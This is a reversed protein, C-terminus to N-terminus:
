PIKISVPTKDPHAACLLQKKDTVIGIQYNGSQLKDKQFRLQIGSLAANKTASRLSGNGDQAFLGAVDERLKPLIDFSYVISKGAGDGGNILWIKATGKANDQSRRVFWGNITVIGDDEEISDINAMLLRYGTLRDYLKGAATWKQYLRNRFGYKQFVAGGDTDCPCQPEAVTDCAYLYGTHYAADKKWQVLNPSYFPDKARLEPYREYLRRKDKALRQVKEPSTDQGRSLSEHHILVADNVQVNFYGKQYLSFCLEVDNYAVPFSPDFGGAADFVCRRILMCAATVALMDYTQTNHGHYLCGEDAMGGLKHAPGIGMNTIGAHQIKYCGGDKKDPPYYLKAGVAGVHSKGAYRMMHELWMTGENDMVEIDDNLFLLYAGNAAQAGINCMASFNFVMERYLYQISLGAKEKQLANIVGTICMKQASTSGNDVVIIEYNPYRTYKILSSLCKELVKANDKSPIIVSVLDGSQASANSTRIKDAHETKDASGLNDNTYLVKPIHVVSNRKDRLAEMFIDYVLEYISLPEGDRGHHAALMKRVVDGRVAFISGVYFFSALTDPSFDPKFWPAGRYDATSGCPYGIGAFTDDTIGYLTELSGKYDEDAYVLVAENNQSFVESVMIEAYDSLTGGEKVFLCVTEESIDADNEISDTCSSFPLRHIRKGPVTRKEETMQGYQRDLEAEQQELWQLYPTKQAFLEQLYQM